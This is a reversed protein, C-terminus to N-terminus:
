EHQEFGHLDGDPDFILETEIYGIDPFLSTWGTKPHGPFFEAFEEASLNWTGPWPKNFRQQFAQAMEETTKFRPPEYPREWDETVREDYTVGIRDLMTRFQELETV